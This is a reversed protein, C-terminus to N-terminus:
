AAVHAVPPSELPPAAGHGSAGDASQAGTEGEESAPGAPPHEVNPVRASPGRRIHTYAPPLEITEADGKAADPVRGGDDHQIINVPRLPTPAGGKRASSSAGTSSGNASVRRDGAGLHAPGAATSLSDHSPRGASAAAAGGAGLLAAGEADHVSGRASPDPLVFPDPRYYQPLQGDHASDGDNILDVPREKQQKHFRRRRRLFLLVLLLAVLAAIGGIVGGVIAGINSHHAGGGSSPDSSTTPSSGASTSTPYAGGAPTGSTSIPSSSDLCSTDV